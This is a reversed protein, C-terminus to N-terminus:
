ACARARMSTCAHRMCAPKAAFCRGSRDIALDFGFLEFCHPLPFFAATGRVFPNVAEAVITHAQELLSAALAPSFAESLRRTHAGEEYAAGCVQQAHNTLHALLRGGGSGGGNADAHSPVLSAAPTTWEESALMVLPADHVWVSLSGVALVHLRLHCKLGRTPQESPSALPSAVLTRPLLLPLIYRQLLWDREHPQAAIATRLAAADGSVLVAIGQGRNARSPKLIWLSGDGCGAEDTLSASGDGDTAAVWRSLLEEVDDAEEIDAVLTAPLRRAAGHKTMYHLLDAKRVLGTKLLQASATTRASLVHEWPLASFDAWWLAPSSGEALAASPSLVRWGAAQLAQCVAASAYPQSLEVVGLPQDTTM